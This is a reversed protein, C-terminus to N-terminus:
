SVNGARLQFLSGGATGLLSVFRERLKEPMPEKRDWVLHFTQRARASRREALIRAFSELMRDTRSPDDIV